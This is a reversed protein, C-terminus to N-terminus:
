NLEKRDMAAMHVLSVTRLKAVVGKLTYRVNETQLQITYPEYNMLASGVRKPKESLRNSIYNTLQHATRPIGNRLANQIPTYRQFHYSTM